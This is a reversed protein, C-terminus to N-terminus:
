SRVLGRSLRRPAQGCDVIHNNEILEVDVREEAFKLGIDMCFAGVVSHVRNGLALSAMRRPMRVAM